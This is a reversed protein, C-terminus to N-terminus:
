NPYLRQLFAKQAWAATCADCRCGWNGYGGATGHKSPPCGREKRRMKANYCYRANAERCFACGCGHNGYGNYTGHRPDDPGIRCTRRSCGCGDEFLNSM